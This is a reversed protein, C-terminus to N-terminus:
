NKTRASLYEGIKEMNIKLPNAASGSWSLLGERKLGDLIRAARAYGIDLNRQIFSASAKNHKFILIAAQYLLEEDDDKPSSRSLLGVYEEIQDLRAVIAAMETKLKTIDDPQKSVKGDLWL